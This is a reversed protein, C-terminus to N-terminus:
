RGKATKKGAKARSATTTKKSTGRAKGARKSATRQSSARKSAARRRVAAHGKAKSSGTVRRLLDKGADGIKAMAAAVLNGPPTDPAAPHPHNPAAEKMATIAQGLAELEDTDLERELLPLLEEEEEEIHSEIAERLVHMKAKYREDDGKMKDLEALVLKAVHHEELANLVDEERSKDLQRLAPYVLQEEVAAHVSLEEIIQTALSERDSKSRAAEFEEFLDKVHAHDDKILRIADM